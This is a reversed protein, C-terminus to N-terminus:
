SIGDAARPARPLLLVIETGQGPTSDARVSGGCHRALANVQTLGLGAAPSGKTSFFPEFARALVDPPMGMGTDGITIRVYEGVTAGDSEPAVERANIAAIRLEGGQPMADRANLWIALLGAGLQGPDAFVHWLDTPLQKQIRVGRGLTGASLLLLDEVLRHLNNPRLATNQRRAFAQILATLRAGQQVAEMARDILRRLRETEVPESALGAGHLCREMLELNGLITALTNNFDHAIGGALQGVAQLKQAEHLAAETRERAAIEAQLRGAADALEGTRGDLRAELGAPHERLTDLRTRLPGQATRADGQADDAQADTWPLGRDSM